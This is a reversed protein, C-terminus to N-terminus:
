TFIAEMAVIMVCCCHCDFSLCCSVTGRSRSPYLVSRGFRYPLALNAVGTDHIRFQSVSDRSLPYKAIDWWTRPVVLRLNAACREPYTPM